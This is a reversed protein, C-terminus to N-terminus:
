DISAPLCACVKRATSTGERRPFVSAGDERTVAVDVSGLLARNMLVLQFMGDSSAPILFREHVDQAAGAGLYHYGLTVHYGETLLRAHMARLQSQIRGRQWQLAPYGLLGVLLAALSLLLGKRM